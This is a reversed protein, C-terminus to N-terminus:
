RERGLKAALATIIELDTRVGDPPSTARRRLIVRGELNTMTGEEEAWQASPFVIDALEATESLFFDSVILTDLSRLRERIRTSDPASVAPNFGMVFLARVDRGLSDLLEYASKGARPISDEAVNWVSAIHRRATPDDLSRYGPLQDAKQGHERGGQGNGQGTITGFGSFPKGPLGLALAVNIYALTNTVGQAHQEPGRATLVMAHPAH